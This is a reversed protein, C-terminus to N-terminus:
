FYVTGIATFGFIQYGVNPNASYGTCGEYLYRHLLKESTCNDVHSFKRTILLKVASLPEFKVLNNMRQQQKANLKGKNLAANTIRYKSEIM